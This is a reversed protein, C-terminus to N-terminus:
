EGCNLEELAIERIGGKSGAAGSPGIPGVDGQPGTPGEASRQTALNVVTARTEGSNCKAAIKCSFALARSVLAHICKCIGSHLSPIQGVTAGESSQRIKDQHHGATAKAPASAVIQDNDQDPKSLHDHRVHLADHARPFPVHLPRNRAALARIRAATERLSAFNPNSPRVLIRNGKICMVQSPAAHSPQIPLLTSSLALDV